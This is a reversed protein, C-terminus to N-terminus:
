PRHEAIRRIRELRKARREPAHHEDHHTRCLWRVELPKAYDDHHGESKPDGCKECPRRVLDARALANKVAVRAAEHVPHREIQRRRYRMNDTSVGGLWRPNRDGKMAGTAVTGTAACATSCFRGGGRIVNPRICWFRAACTECTRLDLAQRHANRPTGDPRVGTPQSSPKTAPGMAALEAVTLLVDTM